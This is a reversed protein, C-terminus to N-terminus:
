SVASVRCVTNVSTLAIRASPLQVHGFRQGIRRATALPGAGVGQALDLLRGPPHEDVAADVAEGQAGHGALHAHGRRREIAVEVAALLEDLADDDVEVAFQAVLQFRHAVVDASNRGLKQFAVEAAKSSESHPDEFGGGTLHAFVGTGWVGAFVVFALALAVVWRRRRYIVRGLSEFM